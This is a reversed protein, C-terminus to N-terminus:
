SQETPASREERWTRGLSAHRVALEEARRADRMRIANLLEDHHDTVDVLDDHQSLVWRMQSAVTRMMGDLLPNGAARSAAEHFDAACRRAAVADGAEAASREGELARELADMAEADHRQAALRFALPELASRIEELHRIDEGTFERVIAWTNPRLVVLGETELAKLADRVPVRSAGCDAALDREILRSGPAREGDLISDRLWATVRESEGQGM